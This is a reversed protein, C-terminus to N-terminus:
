AASFESTEFLSAFGLNSRTATATIYEGLAVPVAPTLLQSFTFNGNADTTVDAVGLFRQGEVNGNVDPATTAFFEIRYQQNPASQITGGITVDAGNVTAVSLVPFNQLANPGADADHQPVPPTGSIDNATVGNGDAPLIGSVDLDIGIGSVSGGGDTDINGFISNATITVRSTAGRVLVGPGNNGSIINRDVVNGTGAQDFRIGFIEDVPSLNNTITNNEVVNNNDVQWFDLGPGLNNTILNGRVLAGDTDADISVGDAGFADFGNGRIENNLIDWGDAGDNAIIAQLTIGAREIFAFYNNQIVGDDGDRARIGQNDIRNGAPDTGDARAGIVSGQLTTRDVNQVDIGYTFGYMGIRQITVDDANVNLGVFTRNGVLELEPRDVLSLALNDVGVSGGVGLTGTNTDRVAGNIAAVYATGDIITGAGSAGSIQPLAASLTLRWWDDGGGLVGNIVNPNVLPVFRMANPGAIANANQIFQYLSGQITRPNGADHDDAAATKLLHTVVNFSFGYDVGTVDA